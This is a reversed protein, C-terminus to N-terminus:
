PYCDCEDDEDQTTRFYVTWAKDRRTPALVEYDVDTKWPVIAANLGEVFADAEAETEFTQSDYGQKQLSAVLRRRTPERTM